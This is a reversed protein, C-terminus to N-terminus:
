GRRQQVGDLRTRPRQARRRRMRAGRRPGAVDAQYTSVQGPPCAAKTEALGKEDIDSAAVHAGDQTLARTLARGIGSGAGTVVAVCDQYKV